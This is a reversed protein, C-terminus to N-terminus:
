LIRWVNLSIIHVPVIKGAGIDINSEVGFIIIISNLRAFLWMIVLGIKKECKSFYLFWVTIYVSSNLPFPTPNAICIRETLRLYEKRSNSRKEIEKASIIVTSLAIDKQSCSFRVLIIIDM